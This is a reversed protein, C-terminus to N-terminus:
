REIWVLVTNGDPDPVVFGYYGRPFRRPPSAINALPEYAADVEAHSPLELARRPPPPETSSPALHVVEIYGAGETALVAGDEGDHSWSDM